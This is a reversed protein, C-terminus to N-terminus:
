SASESDPEPRRFGRRCVRGRSYRHCVEPKSWHPSSNRRRRLSESESRRGPGNGADRDVQVSDSLPGWASGSDQEAAYWYFAVHASNRVHERTSFIKMDTQTLERRRKWISTPTTRQRCLVTSPM